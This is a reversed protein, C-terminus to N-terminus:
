ASKSSLGGRKPSVFCWPLIERMFTIQDHVSVHDWARDTWGTPNLLRWAEDLSLNGRAVADILDPRNSILLENIKESTTLTRTV